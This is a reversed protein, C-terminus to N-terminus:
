PMNQKNPYRDAPPRNRSLFDSFHMTPTL